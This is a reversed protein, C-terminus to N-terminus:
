LTSVSLEIANHLWYEINFDVPSNQSFRTREIRVSPISPTVELFGAHSEGLAEVRITCQEGQIAIHFHKEQLLTISETLDYQELGQFRAHELYVFEMMVPRGDLCRSRTIELLAQGKELHLAQRANKRSKVKKIEIVRTSPIRKQDMAVQNFHVTHTPEIVLRAPALFWGKRNLRYILGDSELRFLAERITIRSADFLSLLQRESPLRNNSTLTRNRKLELLYLRVAEYIVSM